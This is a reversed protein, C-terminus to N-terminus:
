TAEVQDMTQGYALHDPESETPVSGIACRAMDCNHHQKNANRRLLERLCRRSCTKKEQSANRSNVVFTGLCILCLRELPKSLHMGKHHKRCLFMINTVANNLPNKDVHHREASEGCVVCPKTSFLKEARIRGANHSVNDGKWSPHKEGILGLMPRASNRAMKCKSETSHRHGFMANRSDKAKCKNCFIAYRYKKGDCDPCIDTTALMRPRGKSPGKLWKM